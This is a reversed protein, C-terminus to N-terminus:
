LIGYTRTCRTSRKRLDEMMLENVRNEEENCMGNLNVACTTNSRIIKNQLFEHYDTKDPREMAQPQPTATTSALAVQTRAAATSMDVSVKICERGVLVCFFWQRSWTYVTPVMRTM